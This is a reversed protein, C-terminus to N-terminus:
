GTGPRAEIYAEVGVWDIPECFSFEFVRDRSRGLHYWEVMKEYQGTTGMSLNLYPGWTLGGDNSLRLSCVPTAGAPCKGTLMHMRFRDYIVWKKEDVEHPCVRIRRICTCNDDLFQMRQLYLNPENPDGVVHMDPSFGHYRSRDAHFRSGDWYARRHWGIAPGLTSDYVWTEDPIPFHFVAFTHGGESYSYCSAGATTFNSWHNEIAHNSIRVPSSGQLQWAIYQGRADISLWVITGDMKCICWPNVAGYDIVGAGPLRQFSFLANGTNQWLETTQSGMVHLIEFASYVAMVPDPNSEKVGFDLPSWTNPDNLGSVYFTRRDPEPDNPALSIIVYGDQFTASRVFVDSNIASNFDSGSLLYLLWAKAAVTSVDISFGAGGGPQSGGTMTQVNFAISYGTGGSLSYTLVAGSGDVSTVTYRTFVTGGLIVGTDGAAYGIGGSNVASATIAAGYGALYAKGNPSVVFIQNQSLVLLNVPFLQGGTSDIVQKDITGITTPIGEPFGSSGNVVAIAYLTTGGVAFFFPDGANAPGIVTSAAIAAIPGDDLQCFLIKGPTPLMQYRTPRAAGMGSEIKELMLNLLDESEGVIGRSQYAPGMFGFAPM